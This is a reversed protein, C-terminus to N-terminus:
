ASGHQGSADPVVGGPGGCGLGCAGPYLIFCHWVGKSAVGVKDSVRVAQELPQGVTDASEQMLQWAFAPFNFTNKMQRLLERLLSRLSRLSDERQWLIGKFM